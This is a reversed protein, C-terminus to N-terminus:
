RMLRWEYGGTARVWDLWTEPNDNFPAGDLINSTHVFAAEAYPTCRGGKWRIGASIESPYKGQWNSAGWPADNVKVGQSVEVFGCVASHCFTPIAVLLMIIGFIAYWKALGTDDRM